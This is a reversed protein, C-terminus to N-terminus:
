KGVEKIKGCNKIGYSYMFPLYKFLSSEAAKKPLNAM